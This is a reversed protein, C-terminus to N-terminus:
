FAPCWRQGNIESSAIVAISVPLSMARACLLSGPSREISSTSGLTNRTQASGRLIGNEVNRRRILFSVGDELRLDDDPRQRWLKEVAIRRRETDLVANMLEVHRRLHDSEFADTLPVPPEGVAGAIESIWM